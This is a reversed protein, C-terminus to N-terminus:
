RHTARRVRHRAPGDAEDGGEAEGDESLAQASGEASEPSKSGDDGACGAVGALAGILPLVTWMRWGRSSMM